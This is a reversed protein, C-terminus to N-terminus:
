IPSTALVSSLPVFAASCDVATSTGSAGSVTVDSAASAAISSAFGVGGPGLTFHTSAPAVEFVPQVGDFVVNDLSIIKRLVKSANDIRRERRERLHQSLRRRDHFKV